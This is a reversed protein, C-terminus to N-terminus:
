IVVAEIDAVLGKGPTTGTSVVEVTIIDGASCDVDLTGSVGGAVQNAAAITVASITIASGNRNIRVVLNGSADATLCRFHVTKIRVARRLKVGFPNDGLGAARVTDKGFAIVSMDAPITVSQLATDAKDLTTQVATALKGKAIAAGSNIDADVITGDAIKVSTVSSDALDATAISGDVIKSSDVSGAALKALTVNGDVIKATTVTGDTPTRTNSLRSDNGVTVTSATTGLPIRGIAFTGSEIDGATLTVAGTKGAVSSVPAAPYAVQQWGTVVAPDGVIIWVTGLDSRIAWDGKQGTLALMAAQNAVTGLYDVVAIDPLQSAVLKGGSLDAKGALATTLSADAADVYAKTTAHTTATPTGVILVGAAGRQAITSATAATSYELTTQVDTAGTGYLRSATGVKDVKTGLGPVTPADYTGALDGALIIGGKVTTTANPVGAAVTDAAEQASAAADDASGAAATASADADAAHGAAEDRYGLAAGAAAQAAAANAFSPQSTDKPM